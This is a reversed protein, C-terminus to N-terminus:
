IPATSSTKCTDIWVWDHKRELAIECAKVIKTWGYGEHRGDLFDQYSIEEDSWRHSIIAYKPIDSGVFEKFTRLKANLLRM